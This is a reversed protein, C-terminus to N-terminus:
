KGKRQEKLNPSEPTQINPKTSSLLYEIAQAM